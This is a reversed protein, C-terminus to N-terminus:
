KEILTNSVKIKPEKEGMWTIEDLIILRQDNKTQQSLEWFLDGWDNKRSPAHGFQRAFQRTFEERQYQATTEETPPLGAFTYTKKFSHTFEELLRSKGIRRRGKIVILSATQKSLLSTLLRLEEQRGIFKAM